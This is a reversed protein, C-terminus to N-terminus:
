TATCESKMVDLQLANAESDKNCRNVTVISVNHEGYSLPLTIETSTNV